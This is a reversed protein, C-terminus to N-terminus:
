CVPLHFLSDANAGALVVSGSEYVRERGFDVRLGWGDLSERVQELVEIDFCARVDGSM